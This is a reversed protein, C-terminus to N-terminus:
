HLLCPRPHYVKMLLSRNEVSLSLPLCYLNLLVYQVTHCFFSIYIESSVSSPYVEILYQCAESEPSSGIVTGQITGDPITEKAGLVHSPRKLHNFQVDHMDGFGIGSANAGDLIYTYQENCTNKLIVVIGNIHTPIVNRFFNQFNVAASITGVVQRV